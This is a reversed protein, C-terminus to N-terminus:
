QLQHGMQVLQVLICVELLEQQRHHVRAIAQVAVVRVETVELAVRVVLVVRVVLQVLGAAVVSEVM